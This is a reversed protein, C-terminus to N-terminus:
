PVGKQQVSKILYGRHRVIQLNKLLIANLLSISLDTFRHAAQLGRAVDTQDFPVRFREGLAGVDGQRLADYCGYQKVPEYAFRESM